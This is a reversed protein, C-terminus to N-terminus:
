MAGCHTGILQDAIKKQEDKLGAYLKETAPKMAKMADLMAEMAGIRADMRDVASGKQMVEIMNQHMGQMAAVQSKVTDVYSIWVPEQEQTIGLASKLYALRGEIMAAMNGMGKAMMNEGMMTQGIMTQGMMGQDAMDQMMLCGGGMMGMMPMEGASQAFSPSCAAAVLPAIFALTRLRSHRKTM